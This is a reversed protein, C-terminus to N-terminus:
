DHINKQLLLSVEKLLNVYEPNVSNANKVFEYLLNMDLKNESILDEHDVLWKGLVKYFYEKTEALQKPIDQYNNPLKMNILDAFKEFEDFEQQINEFNEYTSSLFLNRAVRGFYKTKNRGHPGEHLTTVVKILGLDTLLDLHFYLNTKGMSSDTNKILYDNIESVNLAHRISYKRDPSKEEIGERLLKIIERRIPHSFYKEKPVNIFEFSPANKWYDFLVQRNETM